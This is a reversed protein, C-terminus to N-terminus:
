RVGMQALDDPPPLQVSAERTDGVREHIHGIADPVGGHLLGLEATARRGSSRRGLGPLPGAWIRHQHHRRREGGGISRCEADTLPRGPLVGPEMEHEDVTQALVGASVLGHSGGEGPGADADACMVLAAMPGRRAPAPVDLTPDVERTIDALHDLPL